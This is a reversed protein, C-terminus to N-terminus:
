INLILECTGNSYKFCLNHGFSPGLTLTGFQSMVMLLGFDGHNVQTWTAHWMDNCIEWYPSCSQKLGWRLWLNACFTIPKWIHPLRLIPFKSVGLKPCFSMQIYGGHSIVSFIIPPLDQSGGLNNGHHTKHTKHIKIHGHNTQAGFINWSHM